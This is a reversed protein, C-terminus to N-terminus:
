ITWFMLAALSWHPPAKAQQGTQRNLGQAEERLVEEKGLALLTSEQTMTSSESVRAESSLEHHGKIYLFVFSLSHWALWLGEQLLQIWSLCKQRDRIQQHPARSSPPRTMRWSRSTLSLSILDGSTGSLCLCDRNWSRLPGGQLEQGQFGHSEEKKNWIVQTTEREQMWIM